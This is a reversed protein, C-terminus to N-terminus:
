DIGVLSGGKSRRSRRPLSRGDESLIFTDQYRLNPELPLRPFQSTCCANAEMKFNVNCKNLTFVNSHSTSQKVDRPSSCEELSRVNCPTELSGIKTRVARFKRRQEVMRLLALVPVQVEDRQINFTSQSTKTFRLKEEEWDKNSSDEVTLEYRFCM